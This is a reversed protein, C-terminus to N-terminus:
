GCATIGIVEEEEKKGLLVALVLVLVVGSLMEVGLEAEGVSDGEKAADTREGFEDTTFV